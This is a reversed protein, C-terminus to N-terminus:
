VLFERILRETEAKAIDLNDNIVIADFQPAFTMEFAAKDVRKKIMEATDTARQILRKQLEEVSPPAIFLSLSNDPYQKKINLGGVVDM